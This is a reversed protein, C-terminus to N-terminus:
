DQTFLFIPLLFGTTLFELRQRMQLLLKLVLEFNSM